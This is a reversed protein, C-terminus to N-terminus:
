SSDESISEDDSFSLIQLSDADGGGGGRLDRDLSRRSLQTMPVESLDCAQKGRGEEGVLTTSLPRAHMVAASLESM